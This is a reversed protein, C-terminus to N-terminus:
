GDRRGMNWVVYGIQVGGFLLGNFFWLIFLLLFADNSGRAHSALGMVDGIWLVAVFVASLAFGMATGGLFLRILPNPGPDTMVALYPM